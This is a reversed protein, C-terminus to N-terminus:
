QKLSTVNINYKKIRHWLSREKIGLYDAARVQVGKAKSLAGLILSKEVEELRQDLTMDEPLDMEELSVETGVPLIPLHKLLVEGDDGALVAAREMANRLERVNGKWPYSVLLQVAEDSFQLGSSFRELFHRALPLIDERRERLPPLHIPFVNLRHFLDERFTGKEIMTTFSKNTAAIVRVDFNVARTGGVRECVGSELARLIKAQTELPMDGIEDLFLTGGDALEFKGKKQVTAGTFAGKEHGFLESELLGEPIAACNIAVFPMDKRRSHSHISQAVVDKGTGSEGMILVTADSASVKLIQSLVGRMSESQCIIEPFLEGADVKGLIDTIQHFVSTFHTLQDGGAQRKDPMRRKVAPLREASQVFKEIPRLIIWSILLATLYTAGTIIVGWFSLVLMPDMGSAWCYLVLRYTIVISLLTLSSFILPIIIYLSVHFKRIKPSKQRQLLKGGGKEEGRAM